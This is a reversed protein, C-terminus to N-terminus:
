RGAVAQRFQEILAPNIPEVNPGKYISGLLSLTADRGHASSGLALAAAIAAATRIM